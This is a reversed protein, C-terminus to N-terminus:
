NKVKSGQLNPAMSIVVEKTGIKKDGDFCDVILVGQETTPLNNLTAIVNFHGETNTKITIPIDNIKNGSPGTTVLKIKHESGPEGRAVVVFCMSPHQAPLSRVFIRDFIGIVSLKGDQAIMAYDCTEFRNLKLGTM